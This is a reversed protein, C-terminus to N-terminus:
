GSGTVWAISIATYACSCMRCCTKHWTRSRRGRRLIFHRLATGLEEWIQHTTM